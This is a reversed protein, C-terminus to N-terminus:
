NGEKYDLPELRNDEALAFYGETILFSIAASASIGYREVVKKIAQVIHEEASFTYRKVEIGGKRRIM